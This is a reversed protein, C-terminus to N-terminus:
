DKFFRKADVNKIEKRPIIKEKAHILNIFKTIWFGSSKGSPEFSPYPVIKNTYKEKNVRLDAPIVYLFITL